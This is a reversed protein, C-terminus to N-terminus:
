PEQRQRWIYKQNFNEKRENIKNTGWEIAESVTDLNLESYDFFKIFNFDQEYDAQMWTSGIGKYNLVCTVKRFFSLIKFEDIHGSPVSNEMIVFNALAIFRMAKEENSEEEIDPYDKLLIGHFGFRTLLKQIYRLKELEKGTDKGLVLVISKRDEIIQHYNPNESKFGVKEPKVILKDANKFDRQSKWSDFSLDYIEEVGCHNSYVNLSLFDFEGYIKIERQEGPMIIGVVEYANFVKDAYPHILTTLLKTYGVEDDYNNKVYLKSLELPYKDSESFSQFSFELM